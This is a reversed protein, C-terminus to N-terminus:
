RFIVYHMSINYMKHMVCIIRGENEYGHNRASCLSSLNRAAFRWIVVRAGIDFNGLVVREFSTILCHRANAPVINLIRYKLAAM